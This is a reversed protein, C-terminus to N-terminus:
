VALDRGFMAAVSGTWEIVFRFLSSERTNSHEKLRGGWAGM